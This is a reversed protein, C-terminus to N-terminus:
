VLLGNLMIESVLRWSRYFLVEYPPEQLDSRTNRNLVPVILQSYLLLGWHKLLEGTKGINILRYWFRSFVWLHQSFTLTTICIGCYWIRVVRMNIPISRRFLFSFFLFSLYACSMVFADLQVPRSQKQEYVAKVYIMNSTFDKIQFITLMLKRRWFSFKTLNNLGGKKTQMWLKLSVGSPLQNVWLQLVREQILGAYKQVLRVNLVSRCSHSDDTTDQCFSSPFCLRLLKLWM